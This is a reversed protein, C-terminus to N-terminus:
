KKRLVLELGGIISRGPMVIGQVEEYSMNALNSLRLFPHVSGRTYAADFDVLAYAGEARRDLVGLHTRLMFHSANGYTGLPEVTFAAPNIWQDLAKTRGSHIYLPVGPNVNPRDLSVGTLSVDTGDVPNVPFGTQYRLLPAIQWDSLLFSVLHNGQALHSFYVM